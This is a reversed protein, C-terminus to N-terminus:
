NNNFSQSGLLNRLYTFLHYNGQTFDPSYSPSDFLEWNFRELLEKTRSVTHRHENQHLIVVGFTLMESM